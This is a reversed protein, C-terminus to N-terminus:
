SKRQRTTGPLVEFGFNYFHHDFSFARYIGIRKMVAACLADHFSIDQDSYKKLLHIAKEEDDSEFRIYYLPDKKLFEYLTIAKQFGFDYRARTYSEHATANMTVWLIDTTSDFFRKAIVHFQDKANALAVAASADILVAGAFYPM